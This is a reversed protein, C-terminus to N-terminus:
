DLKNNGIISYEVILFLLSICMFSKFFNGAVFVCTIIILLIGKQHNLLKNFIRKKLYYIFFLLGVIGFVSFLDFIELEVKLSKYRNGGFLYNYFEWNQNIFKLTNKLLLDRTSTLVTLMGRQDNLELGYPLIAILFLNMKDKFAIYSLTLLTTMAIATKKFQLSFFLFLFLWIIKTGLLPSVILFLVLLYKNNKNHKNNKFEFFLLSIVLIYFYSAESTKLFIGNFGFRDSFPYSKFLELKTLLAIIIVVSNILGVNIVGKKLGSVIATKFEKNIVAYFTGLIFVYSYLLQLYLQLKIDEIPTSKFLILFCTFSIILLCFFIVIYILKKGSFKSILFTFLSIYIIAKPIFSYRQFVDFDYIIIIKTIFDFIIVLYFILETLKKAKIPNM